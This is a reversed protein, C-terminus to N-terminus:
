TNLGVLVSVRFVLETEGTRKEDAESAGAKKIEKVEAGGYRSRFLVRGGSGGLWPAYRKQDLQLM